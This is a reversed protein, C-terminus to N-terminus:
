CLFCVSTVCSAGKVLLGVSVARGSKTVRSVVVISPFHETPQEPSSVAAEYEEVGELTITLFGQSVLYTLGKKSLYTVHKGLTDPDYGTVQEKFGIANSPDGEAFEYVQRLVDFREARM